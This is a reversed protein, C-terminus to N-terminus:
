FRNESNSTKEKRLLQKKNKVVKKMKWRKNGFKKM